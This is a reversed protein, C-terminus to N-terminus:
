SARSSRPSTACTSSTTRSPPRRACTTLMTNYVRDHGDGAGKRAGEGRREFKQTELYNVLITSFILELSEDQMPTYGIVNFHRVFRATISNRGGGPPGHRRRLDLRHHPPVRAGQPRVLRRRRVVPAAARDAAARRVGRGDAHQHRRRLHRIEQGRPPRLVGKRAERVQSDILDQTQNASTQASFTICLPVYKDSFGTQLHSNINVTKGTGTPGTMMVHKNNTLLLTSCTATACRTWRRFSSSPTARTRTTCMRRSRTWGRRELGAQGSRTTAGSITCITTCTARQSLCPARRAGGPMLMESRIYQDMVKRGQRDVSAAFSWSSSGSSRSSRRRSSRSTRPRAGAEHGGQRYFPSSTATSSTSCRTSCTTTSPRSRSSSTAGCCRRSPRHPVHRLAGAAEDQADRQLRAAAHQAVVQHLVDFGLSKPEMYIM